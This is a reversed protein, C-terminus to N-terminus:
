PGVVVSIQYRQTVGNVAVIFAFDLTNADPAWFFVTGYPTWKWTSNTYQPNKIYSNIFNEVFKTASANESDLTYTVQGLYTVANTTTVTANDLTIGASTFLSEIYNARVTENTAAIINSFGYNLSETLTTNVLRVPASSNEADIVDIFPNTAVVGSGGSQFIYAPIFYYLHGEVPYLLISGPKAGTLTLETKTTPDNEFANLAASPGLLSTGNSGTIPAEYLTMQGLQDGGYVVYIGALNKGTSQFFQVLQVATFSVNNGIVFPIYLVETDNPREFFSSQAKFSSPDNVHLVFDADLQGISNQNGLLEEPYRLQSKLWAPPAQWTPYYEKYFSALFSDNNAVTYGQMAGTAVNVLVVGFFRLYGLPGQASLPGSPIYSFSTHLPYDIYVQIAYYLNDGGAPSDTVLYTSSDEVLGYVLINQVRDFVNRLHLMDICDQPPSFAFGLQGQELFWLARQAGCLSYDPQGSYSVNEIESPANKVHVYVDNAFGPYNPLDEGYYILPQSKLHFAETANVFEGTHSNMVIIRSTHTYVLHVAVWDNPDPYNFTTPTVWYEQNYVYVIEPQSVLQYYNVGIKNQSQIYSANSSWQRILALTKSANGSPLSSLSSYNMDQIGATWRTVEVQKQTLPQWEYAIWNNNLNVTYYIVAGINFILLGILLFTLVMIGVRKRKVLPITDQSSRIHFYLALAVFSFFVTAVAGFEYPIRIDMAWYPVNILVSMMVASLSVFINRLWRDGARIIADRIFKLFFRVALVFLFVTVFYAVIQYQIEMSPILKILEQGSAPFLPLGFIRPVASWSGFGKLALDVVITLNTFLPFGNSASFIAFLISWKLAQWFIWLSLSPRIYVPRIRRTPIGTGGYRSTYPSERYQLGIMSNFAEFLDSRRPIPNVFLLALLGAVIFTLGGYFNVSFWNLGAKTAYMNQLITWNLWVTAGYFGIVLIIVAAVLYTIRIRFRGRRSIAGASGPFDDGGDTHL